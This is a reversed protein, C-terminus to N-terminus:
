SRLRLLRFAGQYLLNVSAPVALLLAPLSIALMLPLDKPLQRGWARRRSFAAGWRVATWMLWRTAADTGEERMIRRFIGDVDRSTVVRAPIADTILWDHVIAARAYEMSYPDLGTPSRIFSPITAFDTVYGAPITFTEREGAYVLDEVLRWTKAGAPRITMDELANRFPM